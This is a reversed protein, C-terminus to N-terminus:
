WQLILADGPGANFEIAASGANLGVELYGHSGWLVLGAEVPVDAYTRRIGTARFRLHGARELRIVPVRDGHRVDDRRINSVLNGFHDAYMITGQVEDASIEPTPMDLSRPPHDLPEGLEELAVGRSWHALAPSMIDRGHFTSSVGNRWYRDHTLKFLREPAHARCLPDLLGNDPAIVYHGAIEAALIDRTSGVGPDVVLLHFTGVPFTAVVEPLLLAARLISQPPIDHTIDIFRADPNIGLMVGKMQAVYSDVTGFDTTLTILPPGPNM